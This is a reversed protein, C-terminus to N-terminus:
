SGPNKRRMRGVLATLRSVGGAESLVDLPRHKDLEDSTTNLWDNFQQADQFYRLVNARLLSIQEPLQEEVARWYRRLAAPLGFGIVIGLGGYVVMNFVEYWFDTDTRAPVNGGETVGGLPMAAGAATGAPQQQAMLAGIASSLDPTSQV